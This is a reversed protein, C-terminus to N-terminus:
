AHSAAYFVIFCVFSFGAWFLASLAVYHWDTRGNYKKLIDSFKYDGCIAGFFTLIFGMIVSIVVLFATTM